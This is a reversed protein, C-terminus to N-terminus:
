VDDSEVTIRKVRGEIEDVTIAKKNVRTPDNLGDYVYMPGEREQHPQIRRSIFVELPDVGELVIRKRGVLPM